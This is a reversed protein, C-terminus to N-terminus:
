QNESILFCARAFTARLLFNRTAESSTKKERGADSILNESKRAERRISVSSILSVKM